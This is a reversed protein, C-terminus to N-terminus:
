VALIDAPIEGAEKRRFFEDPDERLLKIADDRTPSSVSQRAGGDFDKAEKPRVLTLLHDADAQLEEVSDGKLRDILESPLNKELAVKLRLNESEVRKAEAKAEEAAKALREQESLDREEYEKVRNALEKAETEAKRARAKFAELAKEGAPGLAPDEPPATEPTEEPATAAEPTEEVAEPTETEDSV